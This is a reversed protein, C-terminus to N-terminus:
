DNRLTDVPNARATKITQYGITLAAVLFCLGTIGIFTGAKINIAYAFDQLWQDVFYYALPSAVIAAIGILLYVQRALLRTIQSVSAGLVKRISIEKTKIQATHTSLGLLGLCSIVIALVTFLRFVEAMRFEARYQRDLRDDLFQYDLVQNPYSEEWVKELGSIVQNFETTELKIVVKSVWSLAEVPVLVMPSVENHLSQFHFDEVIGVIKSNNKGQFRYKSSYLVDEEMANAFTENVMVQAATSDSNPDFSNGEKVSINFLELYDHDVIFRNYGFPFQPSTATGFFDDGPAQGAMSVQLVGPIQQIQNKITQYNKRFQGFTGNLILVQDPNYQLTTQKVYSLQNQILTIGALLAISFVFQFVVLVKRLLVGKKSHELRGKLVATFNFGSLLLAPYLGSIVGLLVIFLFLLILFSSSVHYDFFLQHGIIEEFWPLALEMLLIALPLSVFCILLSELLFQNILSKRSAGSVKRVGVERGRLIARASTLNIYNIVALVIILIAVLAFMNIIRKDTTAVIADSVDTDYRLAEFNNLSYSIEVFRPNDTHAKLAPLIKETVANAESGQSLLVYVPVSLYFSGRFSIKENQGIVTSMPKVFDFQLSSNGPPDEMLGVIELQTNSRDSMQIYQGIPNSEGFIRQAASTTIIVTNHTTLASNRDGDVLEFSFVKFFDPDAALFTQNLLRRNGEEGLIITETNSSIRTYAEFEPVDEVIAPLLSSHMQVQRSVDGDKESISEVRFIRDKNQLFDDQIQDDILFLIITLSGALGLTLGLLNILTHSANKRFARFAVKLQYHIMDKSKPKRHEKRYTLLYPRLSRFATAIYIRRAKSIGVEDINDMFDEYLDGEIEDVIGPGAVKRLLWLPFRPPSIM